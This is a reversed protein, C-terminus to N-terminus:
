RRFLRALWSRKEVKSRRERQQDLLFLTHDDTLTAEFYLGKRRGFAETPRFKKERILHSRDSTMPFQLLSAVSTLDNV